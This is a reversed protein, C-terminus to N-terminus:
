SAGVKTWTVTAPVYANLVAQPFGPGRAGQAATTATCVYLDGTTYDTVLDGPNASGALTGDAGSTPAGENTYIAAHNTM